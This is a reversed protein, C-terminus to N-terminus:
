TRVGFMAVADATDLATPAELLGAFRRAAAMSRTDQEQHLVWDAHRAALSLACGQAFGLALERANAELGVSNESALERLREAFAATHELAINSCYRGDDSDIERHLATQADILTDIGGANKLARLFDLALVNSTGEWIPFM